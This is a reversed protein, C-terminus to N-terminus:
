INYIQLIFECGENGVFLKYEAFIQYANMFSNACTNLPISLTQNIDLVHDTAGALPLNKSRTKLNDSLSHTLLPLM